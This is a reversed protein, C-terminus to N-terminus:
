YPNGGHGCEVFVRNLKAFSSHRVVCPTSKRTILFRPLWSVSYPCILLTHLHYSPHCYLLRMLLSVLIVFCVFMLYVFFDGPQTFRSAETELQSGYTYLFYPDMLLSFKPGTLIFATVLRWLQPLASFLKYRLFVVYYPDIFGMWTPVSLLV